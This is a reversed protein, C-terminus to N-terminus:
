YPYDFEWRDYLKKWDKNRSQEPLNAYAELESKYNSVNKAGKLLSGTLGFMNVLRLDNVFREGNMSTEVDMKKVRAEGYKSILTSQVREACKINFDNQITKYKEFSELLKKRTNLEAKQHKDTTTNLKRNIKMIDRRVLKLAAGDADARQIHGKFIDTEAKRVGWKMGKVGYHKLDDNM